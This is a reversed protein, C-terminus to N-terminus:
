LIFVGFRPIKYTLLYLFLLFLLHLGFVHTFFSIHLSVSLWVCTLIHYLAFLCNIFFEFVGTNLNSILLYIIHIIQTLNENFWVCCPMYLKSRQFDTLFLLFTKVWWSCCGILVSKTKSFFLLLRMRWIQIIGVRTVKNIALPNSYRKFFEHFFVILSITMSLIWCSVSLILIILVEAGLMRGLHLVFVIVSEWVLVLSM